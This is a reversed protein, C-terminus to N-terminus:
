ITKVDNKRVGALELVPKKGNKVSFSSNQPALFSFFNFSHERKVSLANRETNIRLLELVVDDGDTAIM